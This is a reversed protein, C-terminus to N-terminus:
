KSCDIIDIEVQQRIILEIADELLLYTGYQAPKLSRQKEELRELTILDKKNMSIFRITHNEFEIDKELKIIEEPTLIWDKNEM